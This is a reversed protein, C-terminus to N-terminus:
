QKFEAFKEGAVREQTIM